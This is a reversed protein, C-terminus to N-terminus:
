GVLLLLTLGVLVVVGIIAALLLRRFRWAAPLEGRLDPRATWVLRYYAGVTSALFIGTSIGMAERLELGLETFYLPGYSYCTMFAIGTVVVFPVPDVPDGRANRLEM